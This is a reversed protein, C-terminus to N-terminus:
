AAIRVKAAMEASHADVLHFYTKALLAGGDQHGLWRAVTPMDVGSTICQTAFYHRCLHASWHGVGARASAQEMAKRPNQQPLVFGGPVQLARLRALVEAMGPVLPVARGKGSKTVGAPVEIRDPLVHGWTLAMAEGFRMGSLSLFRVILGARSRPTQDLEALFATFQGQSPPTFDRCNLRRRKLKPLHPLVVALAACIQNWRSPCAVPGCAQAFALLTEATVGAADGHVDGPWHKLMLTEVERYFRVTKPKRNLCRVAIFHSLASAFTAPNM